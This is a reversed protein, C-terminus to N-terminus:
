QQSEQSSNKDLSPWLNLIESRVKEFFHSKMPLSHEPALEKLSDYLAMLLNFHQHPEIFGMHGIRLIKGRAEDQGGMLTISYNKELHGRLKQSDMGEPTRVATLSNSPRSSYLRLGLEECCHRTLQARKVIESFHAQLGNEFILDLSVALARTLTVNSSFFTEGKQNAKYERRLDFYFKPLDSTEVRKWAKQSFSMLTLGAPLMFAKQSGGVLADIGWEDMPLDYAGLATIGDVLFIIDSRKKLELGLEKVPHATGTSTETAQTAVATISPDKALIDLITKAQFPEGWPLKLEQYPICFVQAMEVWREGFKGSNVILVKDKTSLANVFLAEMGGSGTASLIFCNEQTQFLAKLRKLVNALIADFEPTRHHIMPLALAERVKPHLNVPGPALVNYQKM